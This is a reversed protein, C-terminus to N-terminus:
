STPSPTATGASNVAAVIAAANAQVKKGNVFVTPTGTVGSKSAENSVKAAWGVYKKDRVCQAFSESLGNSTGLKILDEDTPGATNEAPQNAYLLGVFETFRGDDAACGSAATARTSYRNSSYRDLYAVPHTVLRIRNETIMQNLTASADDHFTKCFPCIFDIYDEVVVPGTGTVIANGEANAGAPIAVDTTKSNSYITWGVISGIALVGVAGIAIWMNRKRRKEREIQERVVRAASRKDTRKSMM